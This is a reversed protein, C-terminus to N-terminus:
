PIVETVGIGDGLVEESNSFLVGELKDILLEVFEAAGFAVVTILDIGEFELPTLEGV